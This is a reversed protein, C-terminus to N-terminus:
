EFYRLRIGSAESRRISIRSNLVAVEVPDRLPAFRVLRVEGGELFGMEMLRVQTDQPLDFGEIIGTDGEALRDLTTTM